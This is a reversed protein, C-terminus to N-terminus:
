AVSVIFRESTFRSIKFPAHLSSQKTICKMVFCSKVIMLWIAATAGYLSGQGDCVENFLPGKKKTSLFLTRRKTNTLLALTRPM